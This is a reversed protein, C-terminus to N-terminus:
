TTRWLCNHACANGQFRAGAKRSPKKGGVPKTQVKAQYHNFGKADLLRVVNMHASFDRGSDMDVFKAKPSRLGDDSTEEVPPESMIILSGKLFIGDGTDVNKILKWLSDKVLGTKEAHSVYAM